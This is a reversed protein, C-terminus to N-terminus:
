LPVYVPQGSQFQIQLGGSPNYTLVFDGRRDYYYSYGNSGVQYNSTYHKSCLIGTPDCKYVRITRERHTAYFDFPRRVTELHYVAGNIQVKNHYTEAHGISDFIVGFNLFIAGLLGLVFLPAVWWKQFSRNSLYYVTFGICFIMALWSYGVMEGKNMFQRTYVGPLYGVTPFIEAVSAILLGLVGFSAVMGWFGTRRKRMTTHKRAFFDQRARPLDPHLPGLEAAKALAAEGEKFDTTLDAIWLWINPNWIGLQTQSVQKFLHYAPQRQKIQALYIAHEFMAEPTAFGNSSQANM